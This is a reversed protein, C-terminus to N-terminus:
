IGQRGWQKEMSTHRHRQEWCVKHKERLFPFPELLFSIARIYQLLVCHYQIQNLGCPMLELTDVFFIKKSFRSGEGLLRKQKMARFTNTIVYIPRRVQLSSQWIRSGHSTWSGGMEHFFRIALKLQRRCILIYSLMNFLVDFIYQLFPHVTSIDSFLRDRICM